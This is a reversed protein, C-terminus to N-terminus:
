LVAGAMGPAVPNPQPERWADLLDRARTDPWLMAARLARGDAASPVVGHMQGSFGIGRVADRESAPLRSAADVLAAYWADVTTEAWGPQASTVAYAASSSAIERGSEDVIALKLSGTGLDIGLFRM